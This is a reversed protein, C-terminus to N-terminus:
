FQPVADSPQPPVIVQPVQEAGCVQPPAPAGFTHPQVGFVLQGAPWVQPVADSPQPPVIVQPAQPGWCAQLGVL